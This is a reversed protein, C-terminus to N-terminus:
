SRSSVVGHICGDIGCRFRRSGLPAPYQRDDRQQEEGDCQDPTQEPEEHEGFAFAGVIGIHIAVLHHNGGLNGAGDDGHEGIVGLEHGGALHQHAQIRGIRFRGQRAGRARQPLRHPLHTLFPQRGIL